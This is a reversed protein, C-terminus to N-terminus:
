GPGAWLAAVKSIIFFSSSFFLLSLYVSVVVFFFSSSLKIKLCCACFSFSSACFLGPAVVVKGHDRPCVECQFSISQLVQGRRSHWSYPGVQVGHTAKETVRLPHGPSHSCASYPRIFNQMVWCTEEAEKVPYVSPFCPGTNRIPRTMSLGLFSFIFFFIM